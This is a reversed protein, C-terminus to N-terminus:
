EHMQKLQEVAKAYGGQASREFWKRAEAENRPVGEGGLYKRGVYYMAPAAPDSVSRDSAEFPGIPGARRYWYIATEDDKSVGWGYAYLDGLSSQAISDGVNALVKLKTAARDFEGTKMQLTASDLMMNRTVTLAVAMVGAAVAIVAVLKGRTLKV